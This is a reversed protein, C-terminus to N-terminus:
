AVAQTSERTSEPRLANRVFNAFIEEVAAVDSAAGIARRAAAGDRMGKVFRCALGRFRGVFRRDDRTERLGDRFIRLARIREDADPVPIPRGDHFARVQAFIWPNEMAARGIMVGDCAGAALREIAHEPRVVDGSGVVPIGIADRIGAVLDWDALGRYM